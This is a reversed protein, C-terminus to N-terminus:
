RPTSSRPPREAVFLDNNNNLRSSSFYIRCGDSSIWPAGEYHPTTNIGEVPAPASFPETLKPRKLFVIDFDDGSVEVSTFVTLMDPTFSFQRTVAPSTMQVATVFDNDELSRISRMLKPGSGTDFNERTFWLENGDGSIFSEFEEENPLSVKTLVHPRTFAVDPTPRTAMFVDNSPPNRARNLEIWVIALADRTISPSYDAGNGQLETLPRAAGFPEDRRTRTATFLDSKPPRGAQPPGFRQFIITLEDGTLTMAAEEDSTNITPSLPVAEGFPASLDCTATTPDTGGEESGTEGGDNRSGKGGDKSTGTGGSGANGVRELSDFGVLANCAALAVLSSAVLWRVMTALM